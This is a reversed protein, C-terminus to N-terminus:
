AISLAGTIPVIQTMVYALICKDCLQVHSGGMVCGSAVEGCERCHHADYLQHEAIREAHDCALAAFDAEAERQVAIASEYNNGLPRVNADCLLDSDSPIPENGSATFPHLM